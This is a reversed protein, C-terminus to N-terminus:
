SICTIKDGTRQVLQSGKDQKSSGKQDNGSTCWNQSQCLWPWEWLTWSISPIWSKKQIVCMQREIEYCEVYDNIV